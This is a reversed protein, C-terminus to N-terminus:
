VRLSRYFTRVTHLLLLAHDKSFAANLIYWARSLSDSVNSRLLNRLKFQIIKLFESHDNSPLLQRAPRGVRLTLIVPNEKPKENYFVRCTCQRAIRFQLCLLFSFVSNSLIPALDCFQLLIAWRPKRGSLLLYHM